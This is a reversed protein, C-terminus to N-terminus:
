LFLICEECDRLIANDCWGDTRLLHRIVTMMNYGYTVTYAIDKTKLSFNNCKLRLMSFPSVSAQVVTIAGLIPAEFVEEAPPILRTSGM